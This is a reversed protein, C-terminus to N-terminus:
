TATALLDVPHWSGDWDEHWCRVEGDVVAAALLRGDRTLHLAPLAATGPHSHALATAPTSVAFGHPGATAAALGGRITLTHREPGFPTAPEAEWIGSFHCIVTHERGAGDLLRATLEGWATVAATGRRAGVHLMVSPFPGTGPELPWTWQSTRDDEGVLVAPRGDPDWVASLVRAPRALAVHQEDRSGDPRVRHLCLGSDAATWVLAEGRPSVLAALGRAHFRVREWGNAGTGIWLVDYRDVAATVLNGAGDRVVAAERVGRPGGGVPLTPTDTSTSWRHLGHASGAVLVPRDRVDTTLSLCTYQPGPGTAVLERLREAWPTLPRPRREPDPDLARLLWDVTATAYGAEELEEGALAAVRATDRIRADPVLLIRALAGVSFADKATTPPGGPSEEDASGFGPTGVRTRLPRDLRALFTLDILHPRGAGDVLVNGHSIDRHAWGSDHLEDVIRCLRVLVDLREAPGAATQRAWDQLQPGDVWRSVLYPVRGPSGAGPPHPAVGIFCLPVVLGPISLQNARIASDEWRARWRDIEDETARPGYPKLIKVACLDRAGDRDTRETQWVEGEGGAKVRRVLRYEDPSHPPGLTLGPGPEPEFEFTM